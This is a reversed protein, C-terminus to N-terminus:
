STLIKYKERLCEIGVDKNQPIIICDVIKFSM